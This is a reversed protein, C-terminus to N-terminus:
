EVLRPPPIGVNAWIVPTMMQTLVALRYDHDLAAHTTAKQRRLRAPERSLPRAIAARLAPPARPYWHMAMMCALDTAPLGPTALRRWDFLRV